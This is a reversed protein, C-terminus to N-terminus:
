VVVRSVVGESAKISKAECCNRSLGAGWFFELTLVPRGCFYIRRCWNHARLIGRFRTTKEFTGVNTAVPKLARGPGFIEPPNGHSGPLFCHGGPPFLQSRQHRDAAINEMHKQVNKPHQIRYIFFTSSYIYNSIYM